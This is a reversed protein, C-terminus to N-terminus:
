DDSIDRLLETQQPLVATVRETQCSQNGETATFLDTSYATYLKHTDESSGYSFNQPVYKPAKIAFVIALIFDFVLLVLGSGFIFQGTTM